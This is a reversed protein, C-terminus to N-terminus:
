RPSGGAGEEPPAWGRVPPADRNPNDASTNGRNSGRPREPNRHDHRALPQGIEVGINHAVGAGRDDEPGVDGQGLLHGAEELRGVPKSRPAAMSCSSTPSAYTCVGSLPRHVRTRICGSDAGYSM